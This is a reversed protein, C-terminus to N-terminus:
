GDYIRGTLSIKLCFLPAFLSYLWFFFPFPDSLFCGFTKIFVLYSHSDVIPFVDFIYGVSGFVGMRLNFHVYVWKIYYSQAVVELIIVLIMKEDAGPEKCQGKDPGEPLESDGRPRLAM